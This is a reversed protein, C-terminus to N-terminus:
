TLNPFFRDSPSTILDQKKLSSSHWFTVQADLFGPATTAQFPGTGFVLVNNPGLPNISKTIRGSLIRTAVGLGGLYKRAFREDFEEVSTDGETLDIWLVKGWYGGCPNKM